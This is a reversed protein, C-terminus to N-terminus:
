RVAAVPPTAEARLVDVRLRTGGILPHHVSCAAGYDIQGTPFLPLVERRLQAILECDLAADLPVRKALLDVTDWHAAVSEALPANAPQLVHMVVRVGPTTEPADAGVCGYRSLDLDPRAGLQLLIDRMRAQLGACSYKTTFGVYRFTFERPVWVAPVRAADGAALAPSAGGCGLALLLLAACLGKNGARM